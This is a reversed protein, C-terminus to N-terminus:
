IYRSYVYCAIPITLVAPIWFKLNKSYGDDKRHTKPCILEELDETELLLVKMNARISRIMRHLNEINRSDEFGMDRRNESTYSNIRFGCNIMQRTILQIGMESKTLIDHLRLVCVNNENKSEPCALNKFIRSADWDLGVFREENEKSEDDDSSSRDGFGENKSAGFLNAELFSGTFRAEFTRDDEQFDLDPVYPTSSVLRLDDFETDSDDIDSM